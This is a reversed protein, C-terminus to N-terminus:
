ASHHTSVSFKCGRTHRAETIARTQRYICLVVYTTSLAETMTNSSLDLHNTVDSLMEQGRCNQLAMEAMELGMLPKIAAGWDTSAITTYVQEILVPLTRGALELAPSLNKSTGTDIHM